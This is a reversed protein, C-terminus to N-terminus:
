PKGGRRLAEEISSAIEIEIASTRAKKPQAAERERRAREAIPLLHGLCSACMELKTAPGDPSMMLFAFPHGIPDAADRRERIKLTAARERELMEDGCFDCTHHIAM